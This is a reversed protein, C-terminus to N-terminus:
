CDVIRREERREEREERRERRLGWDAIRFGCNKEEREERKM